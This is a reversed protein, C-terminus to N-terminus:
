QMRYTDKGWQYSVSPACAKSTLTVRTKGDTKGKVYPLEIYYLEGNSDTTLDGGAKENESLTAVNVPVNSQFDAGHILVAEGHALLLTVDVSCGRDKGEIPFPTVSVFAKNQGDSSILGFRKPEGKAALLIPEVPDNPKSSDGCTEPRGVCIAMGSDDLTIGQLYTVPRLDFSVAVLSYLKDKPMGTAFIHYEIGTAGNVSERSVEKLTMTAGPSSMKQGWNTQISALHGAEQKAKALLDSDQGAAAGSVIMVLTLVALTRM